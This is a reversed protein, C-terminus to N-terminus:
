ILIVMTVIYLLFSCKEFYYNYLKWWSLPKNRFRNWVIWCNKVLVVTIEESSAVLFNVIARDKKFVFNKFPKWSMFKTHIQPPPFLTEQNVLFIQVQSMFCIGFSFGVVWRFANPVLIAKCCRSLLHVKKTVWQTLFSKMLRELM